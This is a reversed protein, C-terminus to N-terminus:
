FPTEAYATSVRSPIPVTTKVSTLGSHDVSGLYYVGEDPKAAVKEWFKTEPSPCSIVGGISM